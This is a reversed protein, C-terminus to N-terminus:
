HHSSWNTPNVSNVMSSCITIHHRAWFGPGEISWSIKHTSVDQSEYDSEDQEDDHIWTKQQISWLVCDQSVKPLAWFFSVMKMVLKWHLMRKCGKKCCPEKLVEKVRQPDRAQKAYVSQSEENGENMAVLQSLLLGSPKLSGADEESSSSSYGSSSTASYSQYSQSESELRQRKPATENSGSDSDPADYRQLM